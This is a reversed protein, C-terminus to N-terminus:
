KTGQQSSAYTLCLGDLFAALAFCSFFRLHAPSKTRKKLNLGVRELRSQSYRAKITGDSTVKKMLWCGITYFSANNINFSLESRVSVTISLTRSREASACM